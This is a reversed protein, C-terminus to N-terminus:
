RSATPIKGALEPGINKFFRNFENAIDIESTVNNKNIVIKTLLPSGSKNTKGTVEDYYKM